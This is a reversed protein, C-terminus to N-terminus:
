KKYAQGRFKIKWITLIQNKTDVEYIIRINGIRLRYGDLEEKLKDLNNNPAYPNLGALEMRQKILAQLKPEQKRIFKESQNSYRIQYM